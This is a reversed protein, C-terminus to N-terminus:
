AAVKISVAVATRSLAQAVGFRRGARALWGAGYIRFDDLTRYDRVQAAYLTALLADEADTQEFAQRTHPGLVGDAIVGLGQQLAVVDLLASSVRSCAFGDIAALTAAGPRGDAELGLVRQLVMVSTSTGRNWGHDIMMLDLGAPMADGAVRNWYLRFIVDHVPDPLAKMWARTVMHHMFSIAAPAGVGETSGILTGVGVQGSSWNGSDRPDDGYPGEEHKVFSRCPEFNSQM